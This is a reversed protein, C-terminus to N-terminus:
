SRFTGSTPTSAPSPAPRGPGSLRGRGSRERLPACRLRGGAPRARGREDDGRGRRLGPATGRAPDPQDRRRRRPLRVPCCPRGRRRSTCSRRTRARSGCTSPACTLDAPIPRPPFASFGIRYGRTEVTAQLHRRTAAQARAPSSQLCSRRWRAAARTSARRGEAEHLRRLSMARGPVSFAPRKSYTPGGSPVLPHPPLDHQCGHHRARARRHAPRARRRLARQDHRVLAVVREPDDVGLLPLLDRGDLLAADRAM